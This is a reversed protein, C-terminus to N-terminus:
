MICNGLEARHTLTIIELGIKRFTKEQQTQVRSFYQFEFPTGSKRMKKERERKRMVCEFEIMRPSIDSIQAFEFIEINRSSKEM